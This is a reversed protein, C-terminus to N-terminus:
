EAVKGGDSASVAFARSGPPGLASLRSILAPMAEGRVLNVTCGGFGAGTMRAGLVGPTARAIEVAADLEPCSVKYLDRLGEHSHYMLEGLISYDGTRLAKVADIVRENEAVVYESREGITTPLAARVTDLQERSVDRLTRIAPDGLTAAIIKAGEEVERRLLNYPSSALERQVGTDCVVLCLGAAELPMPVLEHDQTRCDIFVAHSARGMTSAMQDMIGCGVGVFSNEARRCAFAIQRRTHIADMGLKPRPMGSALLLAFASAVELAASSSLGSGRPVDGMIVADLGRLPRGDRLQCYEDDRLVSAVGRFYDSWPHAADRQIPNSSDIAFESRERYDVSYLRVLGDERPGFAISVGKDIALPLVFGDSYDTHEGILNVRGPAYAIRVGRAADPFALEFRRIIQRHEVAM